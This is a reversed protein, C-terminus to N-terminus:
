KNLASYRIIVPVRWDSDDRYGGRIDAPQSITVTGGTIPLRMAQPFLDSIAEAYDNVTDEGTGGRVVIMVAMRGTERILTGKISQGTRDAAPFLVEFFPRDMASQPDVNPWTGSLATGGTALQAKLAKNIDSRKM